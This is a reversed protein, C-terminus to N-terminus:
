PGDYGVLAFLRTGGCNWALTAAPKCYATSAYYTYTKFSAVQAATLTTIAAQRAELAPAGQVTAAGALFSVFLGLSFM